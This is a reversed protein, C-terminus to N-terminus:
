NGFYCIRFVHMIKMKKADKYMYVFHIHTVLISTFRMKIGMTMNNKLQEKNTYIYIGFNYWIFETLQDNPRIIICTGYETVHFPM